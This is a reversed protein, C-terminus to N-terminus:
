SYPSAVVPAPSISFVEKVVFLRFYSIQFYAFLVRRKGTKRIEHKRSQKIAKPKGKPNRCNVNMRYELKAMRVGPRQALGTPQIM